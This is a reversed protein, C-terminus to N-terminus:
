CDVVVDGVAEEDGLWDRRVAAVWVPFEDAGDGGERGAPNLDLVDGASVKDAVVVVVVRRRQERRVRPRQLRVEPVLPLVLPDQRVRFPVVRRGRADRVRPHDHVPERPCREAQRDRAVRIHRPLELQVRAPIPFEHIEVRRARQDLRLATFERTLNHINRAARAAPDQLLHQTPTGGHHHYHHHVSPRTSRRRAEHIRQLGPRGTIIRLLPKRSPTSKEITPPYHTPHYPTHQPKIM